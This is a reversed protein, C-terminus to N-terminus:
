CLRRMARTKRRQVEELKAHQMPDEGLLQEEMASYKEIEERTVPEIYLMPFENVFDYICSLKMKSIQEVFETTCAAANAFWGILLPLVKFEWEYFPHVNFHSHHRLIKIMAVQGKAESIRSLRLNECIDYPLIGNETLDLTLHVLTHNSLYTKNVSSTDCLVTSFPTWGKRSIGNDHLDLFELTNNGRLANAFSLAGKDGLYNNSIILRELNSDPMELLTSVTRWGKNTIAHNDSLNLVELSKSSGGNALAHILDVVGKDGINNHCLILRRLETTTNRLLTTTFTKLESDGVNMSNLGFSELQPHMNLARIIGALEGDAIQCESLLIHKLSKTCGGLALSLQRAGESGLQCQNVRIETLSSNNKFFQEMMQFTKGGSLNVGQFTINKISKNRCIGKCFSLNRFIYSQDIFLEELFTNHGIYYGLWGVDEGDDPKYNNDRKDIRIWGNWDDYIKLKKMDEDNEKIRRLINRNRESSTIDEILKTSALGDYNYDGRVIHNTVDVCCCRM